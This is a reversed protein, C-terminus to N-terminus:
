LARLLVDSRFPMLRPLWDDLHAMYESYMQRVEPELGGDALVERAEELSKAWGEHVLRKAFLRYPSEDDATYLSQLRFEYLDNLQSVPALYFTLEKIIQLVREAKGYKYIYQPRCM